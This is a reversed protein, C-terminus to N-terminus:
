RTFLPEFAAGLIEARTPSTGAWLVLAQGPLSLSRELTRCLHYRDEDEMGPLEVFVLYARRQPFQRLSKRVLWCCAVPQCRALEAWLEGLEFDSLDQRAINSFYPPTSLEEWARSEVEQAQQLRERWLKLAAADHPADPRPTELEAMATRATWWHDTSSADWLRQLCDLTKGRDAALCQALGRLAGPHDFSRELATEYLSRVEAHPDLSRMLNALEVCEHANRSSSMATLTRVRERMRSLWAHHLKWDSAHDSCWQKDFHALWHGAMTGLLDLSGRRSWSPLGPQEGLAKLRDRLVPHTDELGSRRGLAERLANQAFVPPPPLTLKGLMAQYPGVPQERAAAGRWHAAWFEDRLWARKIEVETLATALVEPGLLGAAVHDAEYEDQRALAFTRAAFRPFYWRLFAQTAAAVPSDDRRLSRHLRQWSLRTRYIWSSFRDQGGRLHGYEHALVALLRSRDLALLLPLGIVLQNMSGGLLGLRPVQRICANFEDNLYVGHLRPGRVKKRVRELAKFLAPAQDATLLVGDPREQRVWLARLRTWLLGAAGLMLWLWWFRFPGRLLLPLVSGLIGLALALGALVWVYGLAVFAAVRHRYAKSDGACAQEGLQVLHVFDTHEM